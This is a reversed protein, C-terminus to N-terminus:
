LRFINKTEKENITELLLLYKNLCNLIFITRRNQLELFFSYFKASLVPITAALQNMSEYLEIDKLRYKHALTRSRWSDITCFLDLFDFSSKNEFSTKLNWKYAIGRLNCM